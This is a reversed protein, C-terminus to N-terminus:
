HVRLFTEPFLDVKFQGQRRLKFPAPLSSTRSPLIPFSGDSLLVQLFLVNVGM